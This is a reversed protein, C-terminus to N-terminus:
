SAPEDGGAMVRSNLVVVALLPLLGTLTWFLSIGQASWGILAPGILLGAYTFTTFRSLFTAAGPGDGGAHGVASFILPLLVSEGLGLLAFGAIALPPSPVLLAVALGALAVVGNFRFLTPRGFRTNLRDGILRGATQCATFATYGLAAVTLTAGRSDHLFISSWSSVGSELLLVIFGMLGFVVVTRTWGSRWTARPKPDGPSKEVRDASPPLLWWSVATGVVILVGGFWLFHPAPNIGGQIVAAGILAAAVSGLSWAAHCGNMIPQKLTREVAVAHANMSVDLLGHVMGMLLVAVVVGGFNPSLGIGFLTLPLVVLALRMVRASGFRAVLPGAFQMTPLAAAGFLTLIIGLEGDTLSLGAKLSPLRVTYTSLLAGNLFFVATVAWRAHRAVGDALVPASETRESM